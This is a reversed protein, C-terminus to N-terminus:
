CTVAYGVREQQGNTVNRLAAVVRVDDDMEM